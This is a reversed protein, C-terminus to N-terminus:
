AKEGNLSLSILDLKEGHLVLPRDHEGNKQVTLRARVRTRTRDLNLHLETKAITFDPPAYDKLYIRQSIEADKSMGGGCDSFDCLRRGCRPTIVAPWDKPAERSQQMMTKVGPFVLPDHGARARRALIKEWTAM